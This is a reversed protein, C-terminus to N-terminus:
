KQDEPTLPAVEQEVEQSMTSLTPAQSIGGADGDDSQDVIVPAGRRAASEGFYYGIISGLLGGLSAIVLQLAEMKEDFTSGSTMSYVILSAFIVVIVLALLHKFDNILNVLFKSLIYTFNSERTMVSSRDKFAGWSFIRALWNLILVAAFAMIVLLLIAIYHDEIYNLFDEM